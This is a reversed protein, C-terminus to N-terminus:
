DPCLSDGKGEGPEYGWGALRGRADTGENGGQGYGRQIPVGNQIFGATGSTINIHRKASQSFRHKFSVSAFNLQTTKESEPM